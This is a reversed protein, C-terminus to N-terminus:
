KVVNVETIKLHIPNKNLKLNGLKLMVSHIKPVAIMFITVSFVGCSDDVQSKLM